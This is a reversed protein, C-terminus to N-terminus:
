RNLLVSLAIFDPFLGEQTISQFILLKIVIAFNLLFYYL